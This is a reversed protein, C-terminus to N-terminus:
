RDWKGRKQPSLKSALALMMKRAEENILALTKRASLIEKESM